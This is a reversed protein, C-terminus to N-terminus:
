KKCHKIIRTISRQLQGFTLGVAAVKRLEWDSTVVAVGILLVGDSPDLLRLATPPRSFTTNKRLSDGIEKSAFSSSSSSGVGDRGGDVRM